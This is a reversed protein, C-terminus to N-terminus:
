LHFSSTSLIQWAIKIENEYNKNQNKLSPVVLPNPAKLGWGSGGWGWKKALYDNKIKQLFTDKRLCVFDPYAASGFSLKNLCLDM